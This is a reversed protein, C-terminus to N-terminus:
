IKNRTLKSAVGKDTKKEKEKREWALDRPIKPGAFYQQGLLRSMNEIMEKRQNLANVANNAMNVEYSATFVKENATQYKPSLIITAQIAGETSKEIGFKTPNERISKDLEAKIIDLTQKAYDLELRKQALHRAYRMFLIPQELSAFDLEDDLLELDKEYDLKSKENTQM